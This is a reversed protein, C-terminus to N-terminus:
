KKASPHDPVAGATWSRERGNYCLWRGHIIVWLYDIEAPVALPETPLYAEGLEEVTHWDGVTLDAVLVAHRQGAERGLSKRLNKSHDGDLYTQLIEIIGNSDLARAHGFGVSLAFMGPGLGAPIDKMRVCQGGRVLRGVNMCAWYAENPEAPLLRWDEIGNRELVLLHPELMKELKRGRPLADAQCDETIAELANPTIVLYTWLWSLKSRVNFETTRMAETVAIHERSTLGKVEVSISSDKTRFDPTPVKSKGPEVKDLQVNLAESLVAKALLENAEQKTM